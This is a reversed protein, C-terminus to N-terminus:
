NSQYTKMEAVIALITASVPKSGAFFLTMQRSYDSPLHIEFDDDTLVEKDCIVEYRNGNTAKATLFRTDICRAVVKAVRQPLGQSTGDNAGLNIYLTEILWDYGLGVVIVKGATDLNIEGNVVVKDTQIKGDVVVKITKGELFELGSVSAVNEEFEFVKACDCFVGHTNKYENEVEEQPLGWSLRETYYVTENNIVREVVLWLEDYNGLPEPIVAMSIIKGGVNHTAGACVKNDADYSISRLNGENDSFWITKYPEATYAWCKIGKHLLHEFFLSINIPKFSDKEAVYSFNAIQRENNSVFLLEDLIHLPMIKSSGLSSVKVCMVNTPSLVEAITQEGFVFEECATGIYLKGLAVMWLVLSEQSGQLIVTIANDALIDGFSNDSFNNYDGACSACIKTGNNTSIAFVFREKFFACCNPYFGGGVIGLEWLYTGNTFDPFYGDANVKIQSPSVVELIQGVGYGSHRYEWMVGGDSVIGETHIPKIQGTTGSSTARYYNNGSKRINGVAVSKGVEWMVTNYDTYHLRILKNTDQQTFINAPGAVNFTASNDYKKCQYLDDTLHQIVQRRFLRLTKGSYNASNASISIVNGNITITFNAGHPTGYLLAVAEDINSFRNVNLIEAGDLYWITKPMNFYTYTQGDTLVLDLNYNAQQANITILGTNGNSVLVNSKNLNTDGFPGKVVNFEELVWNSDGYRKLTHIPFNRHCIYLVDVNQIYSIQLKYNNDFLDDISYPTQIEYFFGNNKVLQRNRYFRAVKDGFEIIYNIDKNVRFPILVKKINQGKIKEVVSIVNINGSGDCLIIQKNVVDIECDTFSGLIDLEFMNDKYIYFSKITGVFVNIDDVFFAKNIGLDNDFKAVINEKVFDGNITFFYCVVCYQNDIQKYVYVCIKEDQKNVGIVTGIDQVLVQLSYGFRLLFLKNMARVVFTNKDICFCDFENGLRYGFGIETDFFSTFEGTIENAELEDFVLKEIVEESPDFVLIRSLRAISNSNKIDLQQRDPLVDFVKSNFLDKDINVLNVDVNSWMNDQPVYVYIERVNYPRVATMMYSNEYGEARSAQAISVINGLHNNDYILQKVVVNSFDFDCRVIYGDNAGFVYRKYTYDISVCNINTINKIAFM